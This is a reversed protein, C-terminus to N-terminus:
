VSRVRLLAEALLGASIMHARGTHSTRSTIKLSHRPWSVNALKIARRVHLFSRELNVKSYTSARATGTVASSYASARECVSRFRGAHVTYSPKTQTHIEVLLVVRSLESSHASQSSRIIAYLRRSMSTQSLYVRASDVRPKTRLQVRIRVGENTTNPGGHTIRTQRSSM